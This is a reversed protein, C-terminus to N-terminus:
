GESEEIVARWLTAGGMFTCERCYQWSALGAGFFPSYHYDFKFGTIEHGHTPCHSRQPAAYERVYALRHTVVPM